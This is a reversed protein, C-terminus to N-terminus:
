ISMDRIDTHTIMTWNNTCPWAFRRFLQGFAGCRDLITRKLMKIIIVKNSIQARCGKSCNKQAAFGVVANIVQYSAKRGTISFCAGRRLFLTLCGVSGWHNDVSMILAM